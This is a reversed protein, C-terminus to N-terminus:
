ASSRGSSTSSARAIRASGTCRSASSPATAASSPSRSPPRRTSSRCAAITRRRRTIPRPSRGSRTVCPRCRAARLGEFAQPSTVEHVLHLDIALVTPHAPRARPRCPRGLDERRPHPASRAPRQNGDPDGAFRDAGRPYCVVPCGIQLRPGCGVRQDSVRTPRWPARLTRHDAIRGPVTMPATPCSFTTAVSTLASWMLAARAATRRRDARWM